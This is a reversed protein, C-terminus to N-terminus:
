KVSIIFIIPYVPIQPRQSTSLLTIAKKIDALLLHWCIYPSNPELWNFSQCMRGKLNQYEKFLGLNGSTIATRKWFEEHIDTWSASASHLLYHLPSRPKFGVEALKYVRQEQAAQKTKLAKEELLSLLWNINSLNFIDCSSVCTIYKIGHTACQSDTSGQKKNGM